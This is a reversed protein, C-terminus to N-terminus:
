RIRDLSKVLAEDKKTRDRALFLLILPILMLLTALEFKGEWDTLAAAVFINVVILICTFLAITILKIQRKRNKFAFISMASLLTTLALLVGSVMPWWLIPNVKEGEVGILTIISGDQFTLIPFLVSICMAIVVLLLYLSQIRQIM